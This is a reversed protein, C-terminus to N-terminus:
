LTRALRFGISDSFSSADLSERSDIRCQDKNEYYSGGMTYHKGSGDDPGDDTWESLNGSLDYLGLTNKIKSACPMSSFSNCVAYSEVMEEKAGPYPFDYCDESPFTTYPPMGSSKAYWSLLGGRCAFDYEKETPLRWGNKSYDVTANDCTYGDSSDKLTNGKNDLYVPELGDMESLANLWVRADRLSVNAVPQGSGTDAAGIKGDSGETGCGGRFAYGNENAWDFVEKWLTFTTETRAIEYNSLGTKVRAEMELARIVMEQEAFFPVRYSFPNITGRASFVQVAFTNDNAKDSFGEITVPIITSGEALNIESLQPVSFNQTLHQTGDSRYALTTMGELSLSDANTLRNKEMLFLNGDEDMTYGTYLPDSALSVATVPLTKGKLVETFSVEACSTLLLPTLLFSFIPILFSSIHTDSMKSASVLEAHRKIIHNFANRMMKEKSSTM